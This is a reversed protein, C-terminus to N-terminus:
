RAMSALGAKGLLGRHGSVSCEHGGAFTNSDKVIKPNSIPNRTPYADGKMQPQPPLEHCLDDARGARVDRGAFGTHVVFEDGGRELAVEAEIPVAVFPDDRAASLTLIVQGADVPNRHEVCRERHRRGKALRSDVYGTRGRLVPGDDSEFAAPVDNQ